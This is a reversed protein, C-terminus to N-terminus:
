SLDNGGRPWHLYSSSWTVSDPTLTRQGDPLPYQYLAMVLWSHSLLWPVQLFVDKKGGGEPEEWQQVRQFGTLAAQLSLGYVDAGQTM